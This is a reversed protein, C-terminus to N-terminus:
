AHSLQRVGLVGCQFRFIPRIEMEQPFFIQAHPSIRTQPCYTGSNQGVGEGQRKRPDDLCNRDLGGSRSGLAISRRLCTVTCGIYGDDQDVVERAFCSASGRTEDTAGTAGRAARARQFHSAMGARATEQRM